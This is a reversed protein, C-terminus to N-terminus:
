PFFSCVKAKDASCDMKHLKENLTKNESKLEFIEKNKNTLFGTLENISSRLAESTFDQLAQRSKGQNMPQTEPVFVEIEDRLL